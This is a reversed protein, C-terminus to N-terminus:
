PLSSEWHGVRARLKHKSYETTALAGASGRRKDACLTSCIPSDFKGKWGSNTKWQRHRVITECVRSSSNRGEKNQQMNGETHTGPIQLGIVSNGLVPGESPFPQRSPPPPTAPIIPEGLIGRQRPSEQTLQWHPHEVLSLLLSTWTRFSDFQLYQTYLVEGAFSLYELYIFLNIFVSKIQDTPFCQATKM